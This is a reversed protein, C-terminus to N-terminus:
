RGRKLFMPILYLAGLVGLGLVWNPIGTIAQNTLFSWDFPTANTQQQSSSGGGNGANSGAAGGSGSSTSTTSTSGGSGASPTPAPDRNTVAYVVPTPGSPGATLPATLPGTDTGQYSSASQGKAWAMYQAQYQAVLAALNNCGTSNPYLGCHSQAQALIDADEASVSDAGRAIANAIFPSEKSFVSQSLDADLTPVAFDGTFGGIPINELTTDPNFNPGAPAGGGGGSSPAAVACSAAKCDVISGTADKCAGNPTNSYSYGMPTCEGLGMLGIFHRPAARHVVQFPVRM